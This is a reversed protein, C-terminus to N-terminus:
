LLGQAIAVIQPEKVFRFIENQHEALWGLFGNISPPPASTAVYKEWAELVMLNTLPVTATNDSSGM